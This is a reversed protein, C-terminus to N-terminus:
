CRPSYGRWGVSKLRAERREMSFTFLDHPALSFRCSSGRRFWPVAMKNRLVPSPHAARADRAAEM